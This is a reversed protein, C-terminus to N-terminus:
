AERNWGGLHQAIKNEDSSETAQNPANAIADDAAAQQGGWHFCINAQCAVNFAVGANPNAHEAPQQDGQEEQEGHVEAAL